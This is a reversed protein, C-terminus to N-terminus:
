SPGGAARSSYRRVSVLVWVVLGAGVAVEAYWVSWAGQEYGVAWWALPEVVFPLALALGDLLARSRGWREGFRGYLAGTLAAVVLWGSVFAFSVPGWAGGPGFFGIMGACCVLLGSAPAWRRVGQVWGVLFPLVIWPSGLNGVWFAAPSAPQPIRSDLMGFAWAAAAFAALVLLKRRV